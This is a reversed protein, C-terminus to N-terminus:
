GRYRGIVLSANHGGFGLSNSLVLDVAHDRAVNPVVDLDIEPDPTEYNVTPHLKQHLVSLASVILEIGGAAGLTHGVMSKTSNVPVRRARERGLLQGLALAEARDNLPTSTGHANVYTVDGPERGADKLALQMARLGGAAEPDPATIHHADDTMGFGLVEAYIRAGRAAAHELREFVLVGAGESLVFGDRNKDFPRCAKTPEENRKSLAGMNGFGALTLPTLAAEAGGTVLADAEGLRLLRLCIGMAHNASACASSVTFNPGRLGLRIAVHGPAANSMMKPVLFPSVRSPGKELNKRQQEEMESIGGIGLGLICGIRDRNEPVVKLGSDRFAEDAAVLGFQTSRDLRKAEKPDIWRTPDFDKVEGGFRVDHRSVDFLTLPAIGSRGALLGQWLADKDLGLPTVAGLGTIVVRSPAFSV